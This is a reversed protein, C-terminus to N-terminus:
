YAGAQKKLAEELHDDNNGTKLEKQASKKELQNNLSGIEKRSELEQDKLQKNQKKIEEFRVRLTEHDKELVNITNKM